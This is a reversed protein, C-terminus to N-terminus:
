YASNIKDYLEASTWWFRHDLTAPTPNRPPDTETNRLNRGNSRIDRLPIKRQSYDRFRGVCNKMENVNGQSSVKERCNKHPPSPTILHPPKRTAARLPGMGAGRRRGSFVFKM